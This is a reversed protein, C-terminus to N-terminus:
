GVLSQRVDALMAQVAPQALYGEAELMGLRRAAPVTDLAPALEGSIGAQVRHLLNALILVDALDPPGQTDRSTDEHLKVAEVMDAGLHWQELVFAGVRPHVAHLMAQFGDGDSAMDACPGMRQLAPLFGIDHLLGALLARDPDCHGTTSSIVYSLAAVAISREQVRRLQDALPGKVPRMIQLIALSTVLSRVLNLGLRRVAEDVREFGKGQRRYMAGNAVKLLRASMAADASVIAAVSAITANSAAVAARVRLAVDPLSPLIVRDAALDQMLNELFEDIRREDIERCVAKAM